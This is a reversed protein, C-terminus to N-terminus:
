EYRLSEVPDLRAARWSPYLTALFSLGLGMIVVAVVEATDTTAPLQAFFSMMGRFRDIGTLGQFWQRITEINEVFALGLAFGLATGVTGVSAGNLVFVRMIMGQTAGMTRLIAIDRGKRKVLMILSSVINFAAVLIILTLIVFMVTREVQLANYLSANMQQWSEIRVADGVANSVDQGLASVRGPDDVIVELHTVARPMAFYRQAARLTMFVLTSDYEIMDTRVIGAIRFSRTRPAIGFGGEMGAPSILTIRDGVARLLRNALRWGLLVTDPGKFERLSGASFKDAIMARGALAQPRVGRVVAGAANGGATVMVQREIMPTVATVGPVRRVAEALADYGSLGNASGSVTIHAKVGLIRTLLQERFGNMVAMVIILTAVGLAIGLLSIGASLSILGKRRRARLYRVAVMWEFGSFM